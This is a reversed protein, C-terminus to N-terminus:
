RMVPKEVSTVGTQPNWYYSVSSDTRSTRKEWPPPPEAQTSGTMENHYYYVGQHSRSEVRRWAAPHTVSWCNRPGSLLCICEHFNYSARCNHRDWPSLRACICAHEVAKCSSCEGPSSRACICAHEVAKCSFVGHQSSCICAHERAKCHVFGLVGTSPCICEHERAQCRYRKSTHCLCTHDHASAKCDYGRESDCVCPHNGEAKCHFPHTSCICEHQRSECLYNRLPASRCTCNPSHSVQLPVDLTSTRLLGATGAHSSSSSSMSQAAGVVADDNSIVDAVLYGEASLTDRMAWNTRLVSDRLSLGTVPSTNNNELWKKIAAREYTRNDAAMVPDTMVEMTISCCLHSSVKRDESLRQRKEEPPRSPEKRKSM